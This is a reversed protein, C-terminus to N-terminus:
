IARARSEKKPQTAISGKKPLEGAPRPMSKVGAGADLEAGEALGAGESCEHVCGSLGGGSGGGASVNLGDACPCPGLFPDIALATYSIYLTSSSM